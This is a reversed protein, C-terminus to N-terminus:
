KRGLVTLAQEGFYKAVLRSWAGSRRANDIYDDLAERLAVDEKRVAWGAKAVAGVFTGAQLQADKQMMLAGDSVSMVTAEIQGDKLAAVMRDRDDFLVASAQPLGADFAAQAWTTGELLGVKTLARFAEVTAVARAPKRNMVVHRAPLVEVTFAALKARAETEIIGIVVDGAGRRLDPLRDDYTKAAVPELKLKHLAAFGEALEREFGPNAGGKHAFMLPDEDVAAIFRITGRKRIEPLDSASATAALVLAPLAVSLTRILTRM